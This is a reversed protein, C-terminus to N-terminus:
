KSSLLKGNVELLQASINDQFIESYDVPYGQELMFNYTWCVEPMMQDVGVIEAETSSRVNTKHKRSYSALAGEGGSMMAGTHGKCDPHTNHSANIWWKIVSLDEVTLRLKTRRTGNLYLIVRKLKGWDDEDPQKVRTTLFATATQIDRRARM